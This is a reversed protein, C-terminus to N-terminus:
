KSEIFDESQKKNSTDPFDRPLIQTKDIADIDIPYIDCKMFGSKVRAPTCINDIASSKMLLLIVFLIM